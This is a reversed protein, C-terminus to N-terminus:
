KCPIHEAIHKYKHPSIGYKRKFSRTFHSLNRYGCEYCVTTVSCDNRKLLAEAVSLRKEILYVQFTVGATEKFISSLYQPSIHLLEAAQILTITKSFNRNIYQMAESVLLAKGYDVGSVLTGHLMIEAATMRIVSLLYDKHEQYKLAAAFLPKIINDNEDATLVATSYRYLMNSSNCQMKIVESEKGLVETSHFDGPAILVATTETIEFKNDNITIYGDFPEYLLIEYYLHNHIHYSYIKKESVSVGDAGISSDNLIEYSSNM